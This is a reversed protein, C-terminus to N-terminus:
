PFARIQELAERLHSEDIFDSTVVYGWRKVFYPADGQDHTWDLLDGTEDFIYVPPGSAMTSEKPLVVEYYLIGHLQFKRTRVNPVKKVFELINTEVPGFSRRIAVSAVGFIRWGGAGILVGAILALAVILYISPRNKM